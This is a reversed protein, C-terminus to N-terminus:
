PRSPGRARPRAQVRLPGRASPAGRPRRGRGRAALPLRARSDAAGGARPVAATAATPAAPPGEVASCHCRRRRTGPPALLFPPPPAPFLLPCRRWDGCAGISLLGLPLAWWRRGLRQARPPWRPPVPPPPWFVRPRRRSCVRLNGSQTSKAHVFGCNSLIQPMITKIYGASSLTVARAFSACACAAFSLM